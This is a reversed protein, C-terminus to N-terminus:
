NHTAENTWIATRGADLVWMRGKPDIEMSQVFQFAKCDGLKQMEWNPYPELLPAPNVPKSSTSALTVPVGTKWRPMTIFMRDNWIKIGAIANNEEIYSKDLKAQEYEQESPWTYNVYKWEFQVEFEEHVALSVAVLAFLITACKIM